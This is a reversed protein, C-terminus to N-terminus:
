NSKPIRYACYRGGESVCQLRDVGRGFLERYLELEHKCAERYHASVVSIPCNFQILEVEHPKEHVDVIYGEERLSDVFMTLRNKFNKINGLISSFQRLLRERRKKFLRDIRERGDSEEIDKLIELIFNRYNNPFFEEAKTTLSYIYGPRGVGKRRMKYSIFGNRELNLIHQRIGIPTINLASSMEEISMEGNKKLLLLLKWVTSNEYRQLM